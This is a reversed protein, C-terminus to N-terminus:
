QNSEELEHRDIERQIYWMAKHLDVVGDKDRHRVLYALAQGIRLATGPPWKAVTDELVDITEYKRSKYHDPNVKDQAKM